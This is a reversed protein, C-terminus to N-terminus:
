SEPPAACRFGLISKTDPPPGQHRNAVQIVGPPSYWSGGREVRFTGTEPGRPNRYPSESYYDSQWWDQVWEWVNGSMDLVGYVSVGDPYSGVANTDGVCYEEGGYIHYFNALSCDAPDNGWPYLRVDSSGRAAKEWQAEYPLRKGMWTCYDVADYWSVYIVPYNAYDPNDYYSDRTWSGFNDPPDCAGAAVCEAYAANTVEVPDINFAELYVTHLPLEDSLCIEDPNSEDCGMQFEGGPIYAMEHAVIRGTWLGWVNALDRCFMFGQVTKPTTYHGVWASGCATGAPFYLVLYGTIDDYLWNGADGATTVMTNDDFLVPADTGSAGSNWQFSTSFTLVRAGTPNEIAVARDDPYAFLILIVVMMTVSLFLVKSRM